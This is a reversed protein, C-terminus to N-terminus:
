SGELNKAQTRKPRHLNKVPNHKTKQAAASADYAALVGAIIEKRDLPAIEPAHNRLVGQITIQFRDRARKEELEVQSRLWPKIRLGADELESLLDEAIPRHAVIGQLRKVRDDAIRRALVLLLAGFELKGLRARKMATNLVLRVDTVFYDTLEHLMGETALRLQSEIDADEAHRGEWLAIALLYHEVAPDKLLHAM